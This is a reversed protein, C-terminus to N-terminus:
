FDFHVLKSVKTVHWEPNEKYQEADLFGKKLDATWEQMDPAKTLGENCNVMYSQNLIHCVMKQVLGHMHLYDSELLLSHSKLKDVITLGEDLVRELSATDNILGEDFFKLVLTKRGIQHYLACSLFFNQMNDTLNDHSLKLLNFLKVEMESKQLKNLAHRWWRIDNVGKMTSAMVSIGLPLGDCEKVISRAIKEVEHPLKAPTAENGLKLM